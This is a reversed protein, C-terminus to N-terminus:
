FCIYSELPLQPIINYRPGKQRKTEKMMTIWFDAEALGAEAQKVVALSFLRHLPSVMEVLRCLRFISISAFGLLYTQHVPKVLTQTELQLTELLLFILLILSNFVM